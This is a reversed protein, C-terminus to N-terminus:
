PVGRLFDEIPIVRRRVIVGAGPAKAERGDVTYQKGSWSWRNQGPASCGEYQPAALRLSRLGIRPGAKVAVVRGVRFGDHDVQLLKGRLRSFDARAASAGSGDSTTKM